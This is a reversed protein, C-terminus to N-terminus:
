QIKKGINKNPILSQTPGLNKQHKTSRDKEINKQTERPKIGPMYQSQDTEVSRHAGHNGEELRTNGRREQYYHHQIARSTQKANRPIKSDNM